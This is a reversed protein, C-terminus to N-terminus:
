RFFYFDSICNRAFFYFNFNEFSNYLSIDIDTVYNDTDNLIDATKM